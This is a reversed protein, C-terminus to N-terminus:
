APQVMMRIPWPYSGPKAGPSLEFRYGLVGLVTELTIPGPVSQRGNAGVEVNRSLGTVSVLRVLEGLLHVEVHYPCNTRLTFRSAAPLDLYGRDIDAQSIHIERAQQLVELRVKPMIMAGVKMPEQGPSATAELAFFLAFTTALSRLFTPM